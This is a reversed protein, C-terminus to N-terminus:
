HAFKYNLLTGIALIEPIKDSAIPLDDCGGLAVCGFLTGLLRNGKHLGLCSMCEDFVFRYWILGITKSALKCEESGHASLVVTPPLNIIFRKHWRRRIQVCLKDQSGLPAPLAAHLEVARQESQSVLLASLLM